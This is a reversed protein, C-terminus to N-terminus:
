STSPAKFYICYIRPFIGRGQCTTSIPIFFEYALRRVHMSHYGRRAAPWFHWGCHTWTLEPLGLSNIFVLPWKIFINSTAFVMPPLVTELGIKYTSNMELVGMTTLTNEDHWNNHINVVYTMRWEDCASGEWSPNDDWTLWHLPPLWPDRDM